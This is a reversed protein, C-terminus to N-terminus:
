ETLVGKRRAFEVIAAFSVFGLADEATVNGHTAEDLASLVSLAGVSDWEKIHTPGADDTLRSPEIGLAAAIRNRLEDKTM